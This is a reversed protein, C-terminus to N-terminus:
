FYIMHYLMTRIDEECYLASSLKEDPIVLLGNPYFLLHGLCCTSFRLKKFIEHLGMGGTPM